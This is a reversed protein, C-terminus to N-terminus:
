KRLERCITVYSQRLNIFMDLLVRFGDDSLGEPCFQSMEAETYSYEEENVVYSKLYRFKTNFINSSKLTIESDKPDIGWGASFMLSTINDDEQSNLDNFFYVRFKWGEASSEVFTRTDTEIVSGKYGNDQLLQAIREPSLPRLTNSPHRNQVPLLIVKNNNSETIPEEESNSMNVVTEM